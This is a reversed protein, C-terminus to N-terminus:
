RSKKREHKILDINKIVPNEIYAINLKKLIDEGLFQKAFEYATKNGLSKIVISNISSAIYDCDEQTINEVSQGKFVFRRIERNIREVYPKQTSETADCYFLRTRRVGEEKDFEISEYDNFESGRDALLIGLYKDFKEPGIQKYIFDIKENVHEIDKVDLKYLLLFSWKPIIVTLLAGVYTKTLGVCDLEGHYIRNSSDLYFIYDFYERGLRTINKNEPYNYDKSIKRKKLINNMYYPLDGRKAKFHGSNVYNYATKVSIKLNSNKAIIHNISLGNDIGEKLANDIAVFEDNTLNFGKRADVLLNSYSNQAQNPSYEYKDLTCCFRRKCGNCVYPFRKIRKCTYEKFKSCHQPVDYRTCRSCKNRCGNLNCIKILNCKSYHLCNRCSSNANNVPTKKLFIRHKLVEKSITSPDKDIAKAITTLNENSRIGTEIRQRQNLVLHKNKMNFEKRQPLM